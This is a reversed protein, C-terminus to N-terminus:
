SYRMLVFTCTSRPTARAAVRSRARSMGSGLRVASSLKSMIDNYRIYRKCSSQHLLILLILGLIFLVVRGHPSPRRYASASGIVIWFEDMIVVM